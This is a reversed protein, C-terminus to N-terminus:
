IRFPLCFCYLVLLNTARQWAGLRKYIYYHLMYEIYLHTKIQPKWLIPWKTAFIIIISMNIYTRPHLWIFLSWHRCCRCCCCCYYCCFFHFGNKEVEEKEETAVARATAWKKKIIGVSCLNYSVVIYDILLQQRWLSLFLVFSLSFSIFVFYYYFFGMWNPAFFLCQWTFIGVFARFICVCYIKNRQTIYYITTSNFKRWIM